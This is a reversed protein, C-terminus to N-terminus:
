SVEMNGVFSPSSHTINICRGAAHFMKPMTKGHDERKGLLKGLIILFEECLSGQHLRTEAWFNSNSWCLIPTVWTFKQDSVGDIQWSKVM